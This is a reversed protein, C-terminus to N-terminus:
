LEDIEIKETIIQEKKTTIIKTTGKVSVTQAVTQAVNMTKTTKTGDSVTTSVSTENTASVQVPREVDSLDSRPTRATASELIDSTISNPDYNFNNSKSNYSNSQISSPTAYLIDKPSPMRIKPPIGSSLSNPSNVFFHRRSATQPPPHAPPAFLSSRSALSSLSRSADTIPDLLEISSPVTTALAERCMEDEEDSADQCEIKGNCKAAYSICERSTKCQFLSPPCPKQRPQLREPEDFVPAKTTTTLSTDTTIIQIPPSFQGVAAANKLAARIHYTTGPLLGPLVFGQEYTSFKAPYWNSDHALKSEVLYDIIPLDRAPVPSPSEEGPLPKYRQVRIRADKPSVSDIELFPTSPKETKKLNYRIEVSGMDNGAKCTYNGFSTDGSMLVQLMSTFQSGNIDQKLKVHDSSNMKHMSPGFWEFHPIPDADIKCTLNAWEGLIAWRELITESDIIRSPVRTVHLAINMLKADPMPSDIDMAHCVYSKKADEKTVNYIMLGDKIVKFKPGQPSKHDVKWYMKPVGSQGQAACKVTYNSGELATQYALKNDFAIPKVVMLSFSVNIGKSRCSYMGADDLTVKQLFLDIGGGGRRPQQRIRSPKTGNVRYGYPTLWETDGGGNLCSVVYTDGIFKKVSKESPSLSLRVGSGPTLTIMKEPNRLPEPQAEGHVFIANNTSLVILVFAGLGFGMKVVKQRM